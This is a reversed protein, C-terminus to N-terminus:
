ATMSRKSLARNILAFMFTSLITLMAMALFGARMGWKESAVGFGALILMGSLNIFLSSVSLVTARRSPEAERQLRGEAMIYGSSMLMYFLGYLPLAAAKYVYASVFLLVGAAAALLCIGGMTKILRKMSYALWGGLAEMGTRAAGWIGIWVLPLGVRRAFLQDYEELVGPQVALMVCLGLPVLIGINKKTLSLGTKMEAFHIRWTTREHPKNKIDKLLMAFGLSLALSGVSLAAATEYGSASVIGGLVMAAASAIGTCFRFRGAYKEYADNKNHKSLLDFLLAETSGSCFAEQIGWLVFGVAFCAFDQAFLWITFGALKLSTGLVILKKRSWLDALMGSPIELVFVPISWIMLLWTIEIVSLGKSEFMLMYVPYLLVFERFFGHLYFPILKSKM